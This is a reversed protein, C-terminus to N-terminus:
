RAARRRDALRRISEELCEMATDVTALVWGFILVPTLLHWADHTTDESAWIAVYLAATALLVSLLVRPVTRMNM